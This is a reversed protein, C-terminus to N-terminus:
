LPQSNLPQAHTQTLQALGDELYTILKNQAKKMGYIADEEKNNKCIIECDFYELTTHRYKKLDRKMLSKWHEMAQEAVAQLNGHYHEKLKKEIQAAWVAYFSIHESLNKDQGESWITNFTDLSIVKHFVAFRASHYKEWWQSPDNPINQDFIDKGKKTIKAEWNQHLDFGNLELRINSFIESKRFNEPFCRVLFLKMKLFIEFVKRKLSQDIIQTAKEKNHYALFGSTALTQTYILQNIIHPYHSRVWEELQQKGIADNYQAISNINETMKQLIKKMNEPQVVYINVPADSFHQILEVFRQTYRWISCGPQKMLPKVQTALISDLVTSLHKLNNKFQVAWIRNTETDLAPHILATWDPFSEELTLTSLDTAIGMVPPSM